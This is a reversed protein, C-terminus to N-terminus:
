CADAADKMARYSAREDDFQKKLAPHQLEAEHIEATLDMIISWLTNAFRHINNAPECGLYWYELAEAEEVALSELIREATRIGHKSAPLQDLNAIIGQQARQLHLRYVQLVQIFRGAEIDKNKAHNHEVIALIKNLIELSYPQELPM